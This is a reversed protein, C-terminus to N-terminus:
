PDPGYQQEDPHEHGTSQDHQEREVEYRQRRHVSPLIREEERRQERQERGHDRSGDSGAGIVCVPQHLYASLPESQTAVPHERVRGRPQQTDLDVAEAVVHQAARDGVTHSGPQRLQHTLGM